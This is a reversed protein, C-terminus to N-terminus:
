PIDQAITRADTPRRDRRRCRAYAIREAAADDGIAWCEPYITKADYTAAGQDAACEAVTAVPIALGTITKGTEFIDAYNITSHIYVAPNLVYGSPPKNIARLTRAFSASFGGATIAQRGATEALKGVQRMGLTAAKAMIREYETTAKKWQGPEARGVLKM